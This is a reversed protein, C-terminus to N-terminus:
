DGAGGGWSSWGFGGSFGGWGFWGSSWGFGWFGWWRYWWRNITNLWWTWTIIGVIYWILAGAFGFSIVFLSILTIIILGITGITLIPKKFKNFQKKFINKSWFASSIVIFFLIGWIQDWISVHYIETNDSSIKGTWELYPTIIEYYKNVAGYIDENNVFPRIQEIIQKAEVDPITWELGYGVTLRLKKEDKAIILLLGNNLEKDWLWTTRFVNLAIDYLEYGWRDPIILAAIQASTNQQIIYAGSSLSEIQSSTLTQTYDVVFNDLPPITMVDMAFTHWLLLIFSILWLMISKKTM